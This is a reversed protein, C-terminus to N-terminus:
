PELFIFQIESALANSAAGVILDPAVQSQAEEQIREENGFGTLWYVDPEARFWTIQRKAYRRTCLQCNSIADEISM